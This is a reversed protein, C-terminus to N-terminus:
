ILLWDTMLWDISGDNILGNEILGDGILWEVCDKANGNDNCKRWAMILWAYHSTFAIIITICLFSLKKTNCFTINSCHANSTIIINYCLIIKLYWKSIWTRESCNGLCGDSRWLQTESSSSIQFNFSWGWWILFLTTVVQKVHLNRQIAIGSCRNKTSKARNCLKCNTNTKHGFFISNEPWV